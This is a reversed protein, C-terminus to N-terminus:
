AVVSPVACRRLRAVNEMGVRVATNGLQLHLGSSCHCDMLRLPMEFGFRLLLEAGFRMELSGSRGGIALIHPGGFYETEPGTMSM